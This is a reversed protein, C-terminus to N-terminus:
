HKPNSIFHAKGFDIIVPNWHKGRKKLLVNSSKFDNHLIDKSHVQSLAKIIGRLICLWYPKDLELTKMAMYLTLSQVKDGQFQTVLCFPTSNTTVNSSKFNNHLIDKSHVHSLAKIIGILIGRLICLWYPKDLELTKMAKYLTLRQIKDGQFQTVLRFPTSNTIVGFLLPPGRHDSIHSIMQAENLVKHKVEKDPSSRRLKFEKVAVLIGRYHALHCTGFIGSGLFTNARVIDTSNIQKVRESDAKVNAFKESGAAGDM